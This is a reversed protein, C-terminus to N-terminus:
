RDVSPGFVRVLELLEDPTYTGSVTVGAAGFSAVARPLHYGSTILVADRSGLAGMVEASFEANEVTSRAAQELHVRERPMGRAILWEAMAQAETVGAQPNGGTVIIPSATSVLAEVYGARLRDILEPRMTGDPLLGFGLIVIASDPGLAPPFEARAPTVCAAAIGTALVATAAVRRARRSLPAFVFHRM